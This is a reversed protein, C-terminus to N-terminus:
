WYLGGSLSAALSREFRMQEIEAQFPKLDWETGDHKIPMPAMGNLIRKRPTFHMPEHWGDAPPAITRPPYLVMNVIEVYPPIGHTIMNDVDINSVFHSGGGCLYGTKARYFGFGQPCLSASASMRMQQVTQDFQYLAAEGKAAAAQRAKGGGNNTSSFSPPKHRNTRANDERRM